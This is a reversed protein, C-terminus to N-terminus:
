FLAVDERIAPTLSVNVQFFELEGTALDAKMSEAYFRQNGQTVTVPSDSVVEKTKTNAQLSQSNMEIHHRNENEDADVVGKPQGVLKVGNKLLLDGTQQVFVARGATVQYVEHSNPYWNLTIDVMEDQNTTPNHVFREATLEYETEGKDNTQSAKIGTAEYDIQSSEVKTVPPKIEAHHHFFWGCVIAILLAIIILIKSNM